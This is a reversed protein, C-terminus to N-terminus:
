ILSYPNYYFYIHEYLCLYEVRVYAINWAFQKSM